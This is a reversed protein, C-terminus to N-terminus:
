NTKPDRTLWFRSEKLAEFLNMMAGFHKVALVARPSEVMVQTTVSGLLISAAQSRGRTSMVLLDAGQREAAYLITRAVNNGEVFYPDVEIGQRDVSEMFRNFAEQEHVRIEDVHEEYRLIAPDSFVHVALCRKLRAAKAISVAVELSDASHRSFDTPAVIESISVPAGEPLMLVSCPAIMALRRALSRQGSRDKRHGLLTLDCRQQSIFELLGDVRVGALEHCSHSIKGPVDRFADHVVQECVAPAQVERRGAEGEQSPNRVHVFHYHRAFGLSALLRAYAVLSRDTETGSLAVLTRQHRNM